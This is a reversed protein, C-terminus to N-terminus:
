LHPIFKKPNKLIKNAGEYTISPTFPMWFDRYKIKSNIKEVSSARRPDALISRNGLARQGFEMKGKCRAIILGKSLWQAIQKNKIKKIVKFRKCKEKIIKKLKENKLDSGLYINELGLIDNKKDFKESAIWAAGIGLSGDGSIPGSWVSSIGKQDILHKLAKINQAVGGSFIVNKIKYKKICNITWKKIFEETYTQLGWAIGDFREGQLIKKSSYYCDKFFNKKLIKIGKIKNYKRFHDLSRQGHYPLGYPALGMVKYEHQGPKMGLLLTIYRYLRGIMAHNTKYKETIKKGDSVSITASSDDGGGELTLILSKKKFQQQSYYGYYQHCKEHRFTLIKNPDIGLQKSIVRKRVKNFISGYLKPSQNKTKNIFEYYPDNKLNPINKKWLLFDDLETLKKNELLIPKWYMENQKIWDKVSFLANPKYIAQFLGNSFGALAVLDIESPKIKTIELVKNISRKPYGSDAKLRSLREESIAAILKGNKIICAHSEISDSIGLIIM